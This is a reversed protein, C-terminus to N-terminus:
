EKIVQLNVDDGRICRLGFDVAYLPALVVRKTLSLGSFMGYNTKVERGLATYEQKGDPTKPLVERNAIYWQGDDKVQAEIRWKGKKYEALVRQDSSSIDLCRHTSLYKTDPGCDLMEDDRFLNSHKDHEELM